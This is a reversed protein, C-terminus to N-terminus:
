TRALTLYYCCLVFPLRYLSFFFRTFYKFHRYHIIINHHRRPKNGIPAYVQHNGRNRSSAHVLFFSISNWICVGVVDFCNRKQSLAAHPQLYIIIISNFFYLPFLPSLLLLPFRLHNLYLTIYMRLLLSYLYFCFFFSFFCCFCASNGCLSVLCINWNVFKLDFVLFYTSIINYRLHIYTNESVHSGIKMKIKETFTDAYIQRFNFSSSSSLFFLFIIVYGIRRIRLLCFHFLLFDPEMPTQLSRRVCSFFSFILIRNLSRATMVNWTRHFIMIMIILRLKCSRNSHSFVHMAVDREGTLISRPTYTYTHVDIFLKKARVEPMNKDHRRQILSHPATWSMWEGGSYARAPVKDISTYMCFRDINSRPSKKKNTSRRGEHKRRKIIWKDNRVNDRVQINWLFTGGTHRTHHMCRHAYYCLEDYSHINLCFSPFDDDLRHFISLFIFHVVIHIIVAHKTRRKTSGSDM